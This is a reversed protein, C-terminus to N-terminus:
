GGMAARERALEAYLAPGSWGANHETLVAKIGTGARATRLATLFAERQRDTFGGLVLMPEPVTGGPEPTETRGTVGFFSGVSRAQEAERVRRPRINLQACVAKLAKFQKDTYGYALVMADM